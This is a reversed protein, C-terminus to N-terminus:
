FISISLNAVKKNRREVAAIPFHARKAPFSMVSIVHRRVNNNHGILITLVIWRGRRPTALKRFQEKRGPPAGPLGPTYKPCVGGHSGAERARYALYDRCLVGLGPPRGPGPERRMVNNRIVISQEFSAWLNGRSVTAAKGSTVYATSRNVTDTAM